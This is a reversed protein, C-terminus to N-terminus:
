KQISHHVITLNCMSCFDPLIHFIYFPNLCRVGVTTMIELRARDNSSFCFYYFFLSLCFTGVCKTHCDALVSFQTCCFLVACWYLKVKRCRWRESVLLQIYESYWHSTRIQHKLLSHLLSVLCFVSIFLFRAKKLSCIKFVKKLSWWISLLKGKSMLM